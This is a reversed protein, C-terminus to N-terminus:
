GTVFEWYNLAVNSALSVRTTISVGIRDARSREEVSHANLKGHSAIFAFTHETKFRFRRENCTARGAYSSGYCFYKSSRCGANPHGIVVLGVAPRDRLADTSFKNL